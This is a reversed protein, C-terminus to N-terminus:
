WDEDQSYDKKKRLKIKVYKVKFGKNQLKTSYKTELIDKNIDIKFDEDEEFSEDCCVQVLKQIQELAEAVSPVYETAEDFFIDNACFGEDEDMEVFVPYDIEQYDEYSRQNNFDFGSAKYNPNNNVNGCYVCTITQSNVPKLVAGCASCKYEKNETDSNQSNPLNHKVAENQVSTQMKDAMKFLKDFSKDFFGM